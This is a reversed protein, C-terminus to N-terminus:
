KKEISEAHKLLLRGIGQGQFQEKVAINKIEITNEDLPQLVLIGALVNNKIAEFCLSNPLYKMIANKDPDALLLLAWHGASIQQIPLFILDNAM